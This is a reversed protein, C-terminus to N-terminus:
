SQAEATATALEGAIEGLRVALREAVACAQREPRELAHGDGVQDLYGALYRLDATAAELDTRVGYDPLHRVIMPAERTLELLSRCLLELTHRDEARVGHAFTERLPSDPDFHERPATPTSEPRDRM